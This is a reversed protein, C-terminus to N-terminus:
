HHIRLQVVLSTSISAAVTLLTLVTQTGDEGGVSPSTCRLSHEQFVPSLFHAIFVGPVAWRRLDERVLMLSALQGASGEAGHLLTANRVEQRHVAAGARVTEVEIFVADADGLCFTGAVM